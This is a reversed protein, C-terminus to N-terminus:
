GGAKRLVDLLAGALALDGRRMAEAASERIAQIPDLGSPAPAHQVEEGKIDQSEINRGSDCLGSPNSGGKSWTIELVQVEKQDLGPGFGPLPPFPEGFDKRLNEAERIYLMSTSADAHGARQMIRLHEDGRVAAWTIGTARLDHFTIWKQRKDNTFLAARTVGASALDDRLGTARDEPDPMDLLRETGPRGEVLTQLLPALAPEIPVTRTEGSKTSKVKRTRRDIAKTISITGHELDVDSCLLAQLEGARAYTYVAVAYLPDPHKAILRLFESPYLYVKARKDGRDPGRVEACPNDERARLSRDKHNKADDFLKTVTAWTNQASKWGFRDRGTTPATEAKDDLHTVVDEVDERTVRAIALAGFLVTGKRAPATLVHRRLRSSDHAVTGVKGVRSALWRDTYERVTEASWPSAAARLVPTMAAAVARAADRDNAPIDDLPIGPRRGAVRVRAHWKEIGDKPDIRLNVHGTPRPPM